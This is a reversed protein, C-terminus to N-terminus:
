FHPIGSSTWSKVPLPRLRVKLRLRSPSQAIIEVGWALRVVSSLGLEAPDGLASCSSKSLSCGYTSGDVAIGEKGTAGSLAACVQVAEEVGENTV